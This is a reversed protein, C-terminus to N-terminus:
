RVIGRRSERASRSGRWRRNGPKGDDRRSSRRGAGRRRRKPSPSRSGSCLRSRPLSRLLSLRGWLWGSFNDADGRGGLGGAANGLQRADHPVVEECPIGLIGVPLRAPQEASDGDLIGTWAEMTGNPTLNRFPTSKDRSTEKSITTSKRRTPLASRSTTDDRLSEILPSDRIDM